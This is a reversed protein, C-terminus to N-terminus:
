SASDNLQYERSRSFCAQVGADRWLRKIVGALEATMVGEEASGALVFLQRADDQLSPPPTFFSILVLNLSQQLLQSALSGSKRISHKMVLHCADILVRSSVGLM